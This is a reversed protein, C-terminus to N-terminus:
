KLSVQKTDGVLKIKVKELQDYLDRIQTEQTKAKNFATLATANTRKTAVGIEDRIEQGLLAMREVIKKELAETDIQQAPQTSKETQTLTHTHTKLDTLQQRLETIEKQMIELNQNDVVPQQQVVVETVPQQQTVVETEIQQAKIQEQYQKLLELAQDMTELKTTNESIFDEFHKFKEDHEDLRATFTRNLQDQEIQKEEQAKQKQQLISLVEATKQHHTQVEKQVLQQLDAYDFAETYGQVQPIASLNLIVQQNTNELTFGSKRIKKVETIPIFIETPSCFSEKTKKISVPTKKLLNAKEDNLNLSSEPKAKGACCKFMAHADGADELYVISLLLPILIYRKQM